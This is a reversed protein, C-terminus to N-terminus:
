LFNVGSSAKEAALGEYILASPVVLKVDEKALDKEQDTDILYLNKTTTYVPAQQACGVIMVTILTLYFYRM